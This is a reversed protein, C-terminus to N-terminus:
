WRSRRNITACGTSGSTNSKSVSPSTRSRRAAPVALRAAPAGQDTARSAAAGEPGAMGGLGRVYRDIAEFLVPARCTPIKRAGLRALAREADAQAVFLHDHHYGAIVNCSIAEKALATAFALMTPERILKLLTLLRSQLFLWGAATVVDASDLNDLSLGNSRTLWGMGGCLTLGAVGVAGTEIMFEIYDNHAHDFYEEMRESRYPAYAYAFTGLGSGVARYADIVAPAEELFIARGESALDTREIREVVRELGYWNSVILIDLAIVSSFLVFARMAYRRRRLLVFCMGCVCLSSFFAINGMRSRTLVLAVAMIVLALRARMKASFALAILGLLRQRRDQLRRVLVM